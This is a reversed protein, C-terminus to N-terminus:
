GNWWNNRCGTRPNRADCWIGGKKGKRSEEKPTKKKKKWEVSSKLKMWGRGYFEMDSEQGLTRSPILGVRQRKPDQVVLLVFAPLYFSLRHISCFTQLRCYVAGGFKAGFYSHSSVDSTLAPFSDDRGSPKNSKKRARKQYFRASSRCSVWTRCTRRSCQVHVLSNFAESVLLLMIPMHVRSWQHCCVANRAVPGINLIREGENNGNGVAVWWMNWCFVFWRQGNSM